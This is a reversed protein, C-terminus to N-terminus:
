WRLAYGVDFLFYDRTSQDQYHQLWVTGLALSPVAGLRRKPSAPSSGPVIHLQLGGTLSDYRFAHGLSVDVQVPKEPSGFTVFGGLPYEATFQGYTTYGIGAGGRVGVASVGSKGTWYGVSATTTTGLQLGALLGAEKADSSPRSREPKSERAAEKPEEAPRERVEEAPAAAVGGMLDSVPVTRYGVTVPELSSQSCAQALEGEAEGLGVFRGTSDIRGCTQEDISAILAEQVVYMESLNWGRVVAQQLQAACAETPQLALEPILVHSPTGFRVKREIAGRSGVSGAGMRLRVGTQLSTVLEAATYTNVSPEIDFCAEIVTRHGLETPRFVHGVKFAGSLEPTPTWGADELLRELEPIDAASASPRGTAGGLRGASAEPGLAAFLVAVALKRSTSFM